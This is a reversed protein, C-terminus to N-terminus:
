AKTLSGHVKTIIPANALANTNTCFIVLLFTKQCNVINYMNKPMNHKNWAIMRAPKKEISKPGMPQRTMNSKQTQHHYFKLM